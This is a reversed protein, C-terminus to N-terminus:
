YLDDTAGVHPKEVASPVPITACGTYRYIDNFYPSLERIVAPEFHKAICRLEIHWDLAAPMNALIYSGVRSASQAWWFRGKGLHSMLRDFVCVSGGVYIPAGTSDLIVYVQPTHDGAALHLDPWDDGNPLDSWTIRVRKCGAIEEILRDQYMQFFDRDM